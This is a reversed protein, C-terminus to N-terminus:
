VSLLNRSQTVVMMLKGPRVADTEPKRGALPVELSLNKGDDTATYLYKGM